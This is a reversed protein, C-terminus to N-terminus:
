LIKQMTFITKDAGNSELPLAHFNIACGEIDYITNMVFCHGEKETECETTHRQIECNSNIAERKTTNKKGKTGRKM